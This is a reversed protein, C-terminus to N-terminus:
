VDLLFDAFVLNAVDMGKETLSLWGNEEKILGNQTHKILVDGYVSEMTKGFISRFEEKQVGRTCRLGLFMFEEMQDSLTLEIQDERIASPDSSYQLYHQMDNTNHYRIEEKLLSAAGLGLGIYPKRRWYGANHRSEYGPRSFNSIEYQLMGAESLIERTCSYMARETDENPLNLSEQEDYFPTGEEIILSYCSLHQPNLQIAENLTKKWQKLSQEPLGMMLDFSLNQFGCKQLITWSEFVQRRNHIRGLRKLLQDDLAQVGMSVRNIGKQYWFKAKEETITGPNAEITQEADIEIQFSRHLRSMVQDLQNITLLSPTGGGIFVSSIPRTNEEKWVDIERCLADIYIQRDEDSAQFSLFDCYRCKQMCFPIHVYLMGTQNM